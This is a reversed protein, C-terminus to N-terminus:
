KKKMCDFSAYRMTLFAKNRIVFNWIDIYGYSISIYGKKGLTSQIKSM